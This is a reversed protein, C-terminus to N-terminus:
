SGRYKQKRAMQEDKGFRHYVSYFSLTQECAFDPELNECFKM